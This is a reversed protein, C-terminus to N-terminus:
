YHNRFSKPSYGLAYESFNNIGDNDPDAEPGSITSITNESASFYLNKWEEFSQSRVLSGGINPSAKWNTGNGHENLPDVIQISHGDLDNLLPWPLDNDYSFDHIPNGDKNILRLREGGNNLKGTYQGAIRDTIGNREAFAEKNSVIIVNSRPALSKIESESFDFYIGDSFRVGEM